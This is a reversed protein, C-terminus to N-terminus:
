GMRGLFPLSRPTTADCLLHSAYACGAILGLGRLLQHTRDEPRWKYFRTLGVGLASLVLISHCFQRHHPNGLAPELIDPLKGCVAGLSIATIPHHSVEHKNQDALAVTLGAAAGVVLHTKGSAM